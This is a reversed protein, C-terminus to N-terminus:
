SRNGISHKLRKALAGCSVHYSSEWPQETVIGWIILNDGESFWRFRGLPVSLHSELSSARLLYGVGESRPCNKNKYRLTIDPRLAKNEINVGSSIMLNYTLPLYKLTKLSQKQNMKGCIKQFQFILTKASTGTSVKCVRNHRRTYLQESMNKTIKEHETMLRWM